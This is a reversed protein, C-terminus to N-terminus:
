LGDFATLNCAQRLEGIWQTDADIVILGDDKPAFPGADVRGQIDPQSFFRPQLLLLRAEESAFDRQTFRGHHRLAVRVVQETM